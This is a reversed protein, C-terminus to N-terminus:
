TTNGESSKIASGRPEVVTIHEVVDRCKTLVQTPVTIPLGHGHQARRGSLALHMCTWKIKREKKENVSEGERVHVGEQKSKQWANVRDHEGRAM